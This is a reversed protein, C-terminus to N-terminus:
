PILEGTCRVGIGDNRYSPGVRVRDSVRVNGPDYNWSGGRVVRKTGSAPGKPDSVADASYAGDYDSVWEWVNGLMDHLGYANAKKERVPHTKNGSNKDYWAIEDLAGYRASEVGGRAAYEWEAETPLRMGMAECYAKAEDWTISEVPLDDGKFGSPESGMVRKWAGQTVPTQGMWFGKTITVEHAPKEDDFAYEDGVSAGMRFKGPPIWVYRLGDMSNVRIEGSVPGPRVIKVTPAEVVSFAAKLRTVFEVCTGYRDEGKKALAKGLVEDVAKPLAPNRVTAPVPDEQLLTFMWAVLDGVDFIRCGTLWRYAMVALAFQDTCGSVEQGRVQEPAMYFITGLLAGNGTLKTISDLKKALGFDAVKVEGDSNLLINQPKIDRHIVGRKHAHDLAGACQALLDLCRDIEMKEEPLHGGDVYEMVIYPIGNDELLELVRVIGPHDLKAAARAERMLRPLATEDGLERPLIGKIAVDRELKPDRGHWVVGMGGEGLQRVIEFKGIQRM